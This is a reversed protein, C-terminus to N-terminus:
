KVKIILNYMEKLKKKKFIYEKIKLLKDNIILTPTYGERKQVFAIWFSKFYNITFFGHLLSHINAKRNKSVYSDIDLNKKMRKASLIEKLLYLYVQSRSFGFHLNVVNSWSIREQSINHIYVLDQHYYLKYGADAIWISLESDEGTMSKKDAKLGTYFKRFGNNKIDIWAKKNIVSGAGWIYGKQHTIDGSVEWQSGIAFANAFENFWVPTHIETKLIGRGGLIGIGPYDSFIKEAVILYDNNLLIDDDCVIIKDYQSVDYGKLLANSKGTKPEELIKFNLNTKNLFEEAMKKTLDTSGNDILLVEFLFNDTKLLTIHKLTEIIKNQSNYCCIIISFGTTM